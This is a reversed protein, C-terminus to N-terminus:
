PLGAAAVEAGDAWVGGSGAGAAYGSGHLSGSGVAVPTAGGHYAMPSPDGTDYSSHASWYYKGPGLNARHNQSAGLDIKHANSMDPTQAYYAFYSKGRAAPSNDTIQVDHIGGAEKVSLGSIAPPATSQAGNPNANTQTAVNGLGRQLAEVAPYLEPYKQRILDLNPVNLM